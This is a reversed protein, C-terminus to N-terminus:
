LRHTYVEGNTASWPSPIIFRREIDSEKKFTLKVAIAEPLQSHSLAEQWHGRYYFRFSLSEVGSILARYEPDNAPTDLVRDYGRELQNGKLRYYVRQLTSRPLRSDANHWGTRVFTIGQDDSDLLGEESFLSQSSVREDVRKGRDVLQRIDQKMLLFAYDLAKLHQEHASQVERANSITSLIQWGAISVSTFIVLALLMELLTFGQAKLRISHKMMSKM